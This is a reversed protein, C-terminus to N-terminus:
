NRILTVTGAEENLESGIGEIRYQYKAKWIYVGQPSLEGNYKGDWKENQDNSSFVNQGWRNFIFFDFVPLNSPSLIGFDDNLGDGNPTFANPVAFSYQEIIIVQVKSCESSGCLNTWQAYYTTTQEPRFIVLSDGTGVLDGGCTDKTWLIEYGSGGIAKLEIDIEDLINLSDPLAIASDPTVPLATIKINASSVQLVPNFGFSNRVTSSPSWNLSDEGGLKAVFGFSFFVGDEITVGDSSFWRLNLSDNSQITQIGSLETHYNVLSVFRLMTTDYTFDLSFSDIEIFNSIECPVFVTDNQCAEVDDLVGIFTPSDIVILEADNTYAPNCKGQLLCRYLFYNMNATANDISLQFTQSGAYTSNDIIDSWTTGSDESLQWQYSTENIADVIFVANQGVAILTDFPQDIINIQPHVVVEISSEPTTNFGDDTYVFYTTTESPFVTITSETTTLNFGAPESRWTSTYNGSGGEVNVNLDTSDGVCITDPTASISLIALPGGTIYVTVTDSASCLNTLNNSTFTFLTTQRLQKTQPHMDSPNQISDEPHWEFVLEGSNGTMSGHLTTTTGWQISSPSASVNVVPSQLVNINKTTTDSLCADDVSLSVTKLGEDPWILEYPGPGSGSVVIASGFVWDYIATASANGTYNVIVTDSSCAQVPIDFDSTPIPNVTVTCADYFYTVKSFNIDDLSFDNGNGATNQNVISIEATTSTGSNWQEFFQNWQCTVASAQFPEGLLIGNIRFQLIAPSIGSLSMVWTSFEYETNPSINITESWVVVNSTSSGNVAMFYGSGSTHDEYCNFNPHNNSADNTIAYTGENYISGNPGSMYIYSSTFGSNNGTEFSGNVVLNQFSVDRGELTYITTTLPQITPTLSTPDSITPDNPLSSWEYTYNTPGSGQLTTIDDVCITQNDGASIQAYSSIFIISLLTLLGLRM